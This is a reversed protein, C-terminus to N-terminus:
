PTRAVRFGIGNSALGPASSGRATSRCYYGYSYWGGGRVSRYSGAEPGEPETVPSSTYERQWWGNCWENVNGSMDFCGAPSSAGRYYGVPSTFPFSSLGLPNCHGDPNCNVTDCSISDSGHGYRYHYGGSASEWAATREWEAETPLRYGNKTRDCTWTSTDYCVQMGADMSLWNCYAAAGYWSVMVVPHDVMSHGDRTGVVFDLGNWAIQCSRYGAWDEDLNLLEQGYATATSSSATDLYGRENAWNLVDAYEQNTVEYKGIQYASLTVNHVPRENSNGENFPDGMEFTGAPISVMEGLTVESEGEPAPGEGEDAPPEAEGEPEGENTPTEGEGEELDPEGDGGVEGDAEPEGEGEPAPGEGEDSPPGAEGEPEGENTPTEGEGEQLDPEGEQTTDEGEDTGGEADVTVTVEKDDASFIITTENSGGSLLERNCAVQVDVTADPALEGRGPQLSLWAADTESDWSLTASGDNSLQLSLKTESTGFDLSLPDVALGGSPTPCGPLLAAAVVLLGGLILCHWKSSETNMM